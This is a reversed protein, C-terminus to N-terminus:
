GLGFVELCKVKLSIVEALGLTSRHKPSVRYRPKHTTHPSGDLRRHIKTQLFPADSKCPSSPPLMCWIEFTESPNRVFVNKKKGYFMSGRLNQPGLTALWIGKKTGIKQWVIQAGKRQLLFVDQLFGCLSTRQDAVLWALGWIPSMQSTKKSDQFDESTSKKIGEFFVVFSGIKGLIKSGFHPSYPLLTQKQQYKYLDTADEKKELLSRSYTGRTSGPLLQFPDKILNM